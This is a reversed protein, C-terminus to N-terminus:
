MAKERTWPRRIEKHILLGSKKLVNRRKEMRKLLSFIAIFYILNQIYMEFCRVKATKM